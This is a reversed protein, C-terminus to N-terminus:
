MAAHLCSSTNRDGDQESVGGVREGRGQTWDYQNPNNLDARGDSVRIARANIANRLKVPHFHICTFASQVHLVRIQPDRWM